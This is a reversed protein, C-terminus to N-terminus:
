VIPSLQDYDGIMVFKESFFLSSVMIPEVTLSAEDIVVFDFPRAKLIPMRTALCTTFMIRKKELYNDIDTFNKFQKNDFIIDNIDLQNSASKTASMRALFHKDKPFLSVFKEIINDIAQHTYSTVLIRKKLEICIKLLLCTTHTKGTGPMGVILSFDKANLSQDLVKIQSPNLKKKEKAGLLYGYSDFKLAKEGTIFEPKIDPNTLLDAIKNNKEETVLGMVYGRMKNFNSYMKDNSFMWNSVVVEYPYCSMKSLSMKVHYFNYKVLVYVIYFETNGVKKRRINKSILTGSLM